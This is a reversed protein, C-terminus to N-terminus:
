LEGAEFNDAATVAAGFFSRFGAYQGSTINTDTVPGLEVTTSGDTISGSVSSGVVEVRLTAPYTGSYTTPGAALATTTGASIRELRVTTAGGTTREVRCGYGTVASTGPMRCVAVWLHAGFQDSLAASVVLEAYNDDSGLASDAFASGVTSTAANRVENSSTEHNGQIESWTLDPGLTTSNAQDFSETIVTAPAAAAFRYHDVVM